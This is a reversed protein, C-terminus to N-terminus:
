RGGKTGCQAKAASRAEKLLSEVAVNEDWAAPLQRRRSLHRAKGDQLRFTDEAYPNAVPRYAGTAPIAKLYFLYSANRQLAPFAPDIALVTRGGFAVAGGGRVVTIRGGEAIPSAAADKLVEAPAVEYDTFLFTGDATFNSDKGKVTGVVVADARCTLDHLYAALPRAPYHTYEEIPAWVEIEGRENGPEQLKDKIKIPRTSKSKFLKSHEKQKESMGGEQVPTAEEAAAPEPRQRQARLSASITLTALVVVAFVAAVLGPRLVRRDNKM